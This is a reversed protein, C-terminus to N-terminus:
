VMKRKRVSLKLRVIEVVERTNTAMKNILMTVFVQELDIGIYLDSLGGCHGCVIPRHGTHSLTNM